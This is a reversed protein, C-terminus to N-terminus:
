VSVAERGAFQPALITLARVKIPDDKVWNRAFRREIKQADTGQVKTGWDAYEIAAQLAGWATGKINQLDEGNRMIALVADRAQQANKAAQSDLEVGAKFPILRELFAVEAKAPMKTALLTEGMEKFIEDRKFAIEMLRRAEGARYEIGPTHRARFEYGGEGLAIGLTNSCVVRENVNKIGFSLTGAHGNFALIYRRIKEEDTGITIYDPMEALMWVKVGGLLVGATVYRLEGGGVLEDMFSYADANQVPTWDKGVVGLPAGTDTRYTAFRDPVRVSEGNIQAFVPAKEVAWDQGAQVLAEEATLAEQVVTALGHWAPERVVFGSDFYAPM